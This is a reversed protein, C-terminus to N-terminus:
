IHILSLKPSLDLGIVDAGDISLLKVTNRGTGCGLDIIKPSPPLSALWQPLLDELLHSDLIQLFNGDADYHPAWLDYADITPLYLPARPGEQSPRM